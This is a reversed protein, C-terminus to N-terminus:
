QLTQGNADTNQRKIGSKKTFCFSICFRAAQNSAMSFVLVCPVQPVGPPRCTLSSTPKLRKTWMELQSMKWQRRKSFYDLYVVKEFPHNHGLCCGPAKYCKYRKVHRWSLLLFHFICNEKEEAAKLLLMVKAMDKKNQQKEFLHRLHPCPASAQLTPLGAEVPLTVQEGHTLFCSSALGDL